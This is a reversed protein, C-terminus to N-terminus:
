INKSQKAYGTYHKQMDADTMDPYFLRYEAKVDAPVEVTGTGRTQTKELHSKSREANRTQQQARQAARNEIDALNALRYADLITYGRKVKEYIEPYSELKTLDSLSQIAPNLATIEKVQEDIKAKADRERAARIVAEAEEKARKAEQVEPRSAMFAAFQEESMGNNEMVTNKQEDSLRTKYTEFEEPTRIPEGTYPNTLNATQLFDAIQKRAYQKAEEHARKVAADREAEAKRRAAAFRANDERSQSTTKADGASEREEGDGPVLAGEAPPISEDDERVTGAGTEEEPSIGATDATEASAETPEAVESGKEGEPEVGLAEYLDFEM